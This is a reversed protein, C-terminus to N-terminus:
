SFEQCESSDSLSLQQVRLGTARRGEEPVRCSNPPASESPDAEGSRPSQQALSSRGGLADGARLGGGGARCTEYSM